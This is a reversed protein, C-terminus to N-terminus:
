RWDGPFFAGNRRIAREVFTEGSDPESGTVLRLPAAEHRVCRAILQSLADVDDDHAGRPFVCCAHVFDDVWAREPLLRGYPRPNPLWVNGAEVLPSAAQARAYKGGEPTVGIIGAVHRGLTNIIAPGNAADEILITETQPYQRHLDLVQRCTESFGWQGKRRDIVYIDAGQTAAQLGVVYDSSPSDKFTMDWSQLWTDSDVPPREDYFKFWERRFLLGGAPAPRQQYQGAYAASGLAVKQQALIAPGEREPWLVDGPERHYIRQTRPFVCPTLVDAEAPLCVHTFGLELCLAALDREHLRQMVVVIADDNKNDLRTSLTRSFYALASERQADSEAQLPNHPDDVVIRSGGKGTISGGISTAIMHGRRTNMFEHKVNQDSALRVQDGWRHQYWPSQLITRRDVSHKSSLTEAYSAFIWRRQPAQIWEWTPWFVSVLLSKMYRPPLNILLRTIQSATVAELHEVIYEIHWNPLFPVDPELLAWAQRVYSYLSHEAERKLLADQLKLQQILQTHSPSV